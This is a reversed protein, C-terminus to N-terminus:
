GPRSGFQRRMAEAFPVHVLSFELDAPGGDGVNDEALMRIQDRNLPPAQGLVRPWLFELLRAQFGAVAFPITVIARRRALAGLITRLVERFSMREPGCLDYTRGHTAAVPIARVFARAVQGVEIPQLLGHGGGIAPLFPSFRSMRAFLRTFADGPGYILSPRFITWDLGSARVIEEAAWKTRHYRSRAGERTGLASMHVFRRVGAARAADVMTRTLDVHVAEFTNEGCESIIGALHIVAQAGQCAEVVDAEKAFDVHRM